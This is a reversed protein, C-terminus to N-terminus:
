ADKVANSTAFSDSSVYTPPLSSTSDPCAVALRSILLRFRRPMYASRSVGAEDEITAAFKENEAVEHVLSREVEKEEELEDEEHDPGLVDRLQERYGGSPDSDVGSYVFAEEDADEDEDTGHGEGDEGDSILEEFRASYDGLGPEPSDDGENDSLNFDHDSAIDAASHTGNM